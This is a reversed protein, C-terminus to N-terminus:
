EQFLEETQQDEGDLAYAGSISFFQYLRKKLEPSLNKQKSKEIEKAIKVFEHPDSMLKDMMVAATDKPDVRNLIRGAGSRVRAGVRNLAGFAQTILFDVGGSAAKRFESTDFIPIKNATKGRDLETTQRVISKIADMIQPQDKYLEDGVDFIRKLENDDIPNLAKAGTSTEKARFLQDQLYKSYAAKLGKGNDGARHVIDPLDTLVEPNDFVNKFTGTTDIRARTEGGVTSFFDKYKGKLSTVTEDRTKQLVKLEELLDDTNRDMSNIRTIFSNIREVGKKDGIEKFVPVFKELGLSIDKIKTPDLRGKNANLARQVDSAFEGLAYDLLQGSSKKGEDTNLLTIIKKTFRERSPDTITSKIVDSSEIYKTDPKFKNDRGIAQIDELPGDRWFPAYVNKYYNMAEEAAKKVDPRGSKALAELQDETIIKKFESIMNAKRFEGAQRLKSIEDSLDFDAFEQAQKFSGSMNKIKEGLNPPLYDLMAEMKKLVEPDLPADPIAAFLDNKKDTMIRSAENIRDVVEELRLNQASSFDINAEAGLKSLTEGFQPDNQILDVIDEKSQVIRRNMQGVQEDMKTIDDIVSTQIRKKAGTAAEPGGAIIETQSLVRETEKAPRDLAEKLHSANKSEVGSRLGRARAIQAGDTIKDLGQEYASMTDRTFGVDGLEDTTSFVVDANERIKNLIRDTIVRVEEPSTDEAVPVIETLIDEVLTKKMGKLDGLNKIPQIIFDNALKYGGVLTKGVIEGGTAVLMADALIDMRKKLLDESFTGNGDTGLEQYIPFLGKEGIFITDTEADVSSAAGAEAFLTKLVKGMAGAGKYVKNAVGLGGMFGGALEGTGTMLDGSFTGKRPSEYKPMAQRFSEASNSGSLNDKLALVTEAVNVPANYLGGVADAFTGPFGPELGADSFNWTPSQPAEPPPNSVGINDSEFLKGSKFDEITNRGSSPAGRLMQQLADYAGQENDGEVEYVSGDPTEIEFIPM